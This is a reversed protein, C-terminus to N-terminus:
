SASVAGTLQTSSGALVARRRPKPTRTSQSIATMAARAARRSRKHHLLDADATDLLADLSADSSATAYVHGVSIGIPAPLVNLANLEDLREAIRSRIAGDCAGIADVALITFEDGGMRAVMDTERVASRLVRAIERLARDGTAHGHVDNIQKFSDCDLYFLVANHGQARAAKLREDALSLFARRNLLGTLEDTLSARKWRAAERKRERIDSLTLSLGTEVPVARVRLWSTTVHRPHARVEDRFPTGSNLTHVLSQFLATDPALSALTSTRVGDLETLTRRFMSAVRENADTVAFDVITGDADRIPELHVLGDESGHVSLRLRRERNRLAQLDTAQRRAHEALRQNSRGAIVLAFLGASLTLLVFLLPFASVTRMTADVVLDPSNSAPELSPWM